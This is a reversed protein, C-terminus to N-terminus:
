KAAKQQEVTEKSDQAATKRCFLGGFLGFVDGSGGASGKGSRGQGAWSRGLHGWSRGLAGLVAGVDGLITGLGGWSSGLVAGLGGLVAGLLGLVAGLFSGFCFCFFPVSFAAELAVRVHVRM